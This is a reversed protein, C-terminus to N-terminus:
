RSWRWRVLLDSHELEGRGLVIMALVLSGIGRPGFWGVFLRSRWPVDTRLLAATTAALRVGVLALAAFLVVQWTATRWAAVVLYAGFLAFVLLELLKATADTVQTPVSAGARRSVLAYALGGVFAAM